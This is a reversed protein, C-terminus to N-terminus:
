NRLRVTTGLEVNGSRGKEGALTVTVVRTDTGADAPDVRIGNIYRAVPNNGKGSIARILQSARESDGSIGVHYSITDGMTNAFAVRGGNDPTFSVFGDALRLERSLRNIGVRLNEAVEARDRNIHCANLVHAGLVHTVGIVVVVLFISIVVEALTFGNKNKVYRRVAAFM